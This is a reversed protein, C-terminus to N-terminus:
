AHRNTRTRPKTVQPLTAPRYGLQERRLVLGLRDIAVCDLTHGGFVFGWLNVDVAARDVEVAALRVALVVLLLALPCQEIAVISGAGPYM